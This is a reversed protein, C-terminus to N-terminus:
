RHNPPGPQPHQHRATGHKPATPQDHQASCHATRLWLTWFKKPRERRALSAMGLLSLAGWFFTQAKASASGPCHVLRQMAAECPAMCPRTEIGGIAPCRVGVPSGSALDARSYGFDTILRLEPEEPVLSVLATLRAVSLPPNPSGTIRVRHTGTRSAREDRKMKKEGPLSNLLESDIPPAKRPLAGPEQIESTLEPRSTGPRPM